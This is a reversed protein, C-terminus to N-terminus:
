ELSQFWGETEKPDKFRYLKLHAYEPLALLQPYERRRRWYTKFLWHFLSDQASWIKFQPLLREYNTGWLLERTWWRSWTRRWLQWFVTGLSYDLWIVAEARPWSMDRAPSYNGAIAWASPRTALEVRTRFEDESVHNWGPLWYLADLEIYELGLKESLKEALTSKGSGATGIVIIRRYPCTTPM